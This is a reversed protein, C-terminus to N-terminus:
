CFKNDNKCLKGKFICNESKKERKEYKKQKQFIACDLHLPVIYIKELKPQFFGFHNFHHPTDKARKTHVQLHQLGRHRYVKM